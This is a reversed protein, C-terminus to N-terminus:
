DKEIYLTKWEPFSRQLLSQLPKTKEQLIPRLYNKVEETPQENRSIKRTAMSNGLKRIWLPSYQHLRNWVDSHRFAHLVGFGKVMHINKPTVNEARMLSPPSYDGNVGLWEYTQQITEETQSILEEFTVIFFRDLPFFNLFTSLQLYYDSFDVLDRNLQIATFMDRQEGHWRVQHWYHSISRMVPDRLVYVFRADPNYAAIREPVGEYKPMMTYDASSEGIVKTNKSVQEFLNHYWDEGKDWNREKVFYWPEKPDSMVIEPHDALYHHLTTSGAKMAGIVFLNVKRPSRM